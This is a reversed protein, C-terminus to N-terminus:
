VREGEWKSWQESTQPLLNTGYKMTSNSQTRLLTISNSLTTHVLCSSWPADSPWDRLNQRARLSLDVQPQVEYMMRVKLEELRLGDRYGNIKRLSGAPSWITMLTSTQPAWILRRGATQSSLTRSYKNWRRHWRQSKQPPSNPKKAGKHCMRGQQRSCVTHTQTLSKLM